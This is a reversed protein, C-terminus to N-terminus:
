PSLELSLCFLIFGYFAFRFSVLFRLFGSIRTTCVFICLGIEILHAVSISLETPNPYLQFQRTSLLNSTFVFEVTRSNSRWM